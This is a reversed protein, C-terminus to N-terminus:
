RMIPIHKISESNKVKYAPIVKEPYEEGARLPKHFGILNHSFENMEKIFKSKFGDINIVELSLCM